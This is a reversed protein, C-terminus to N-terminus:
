WTSVLVIPSYQQTPIGSKRLGSISIIHVKRRFFTREHKRTKNGKCDPQKQVVRSLFTQLVVLLRFRMRPVLCRGIEFPSLCPRGKSPCHDNTSVSSPPLVRALALTRALLTRQLAIFHLAVCQKPLAIFSVASTATHPTYVLRHSTTLHM